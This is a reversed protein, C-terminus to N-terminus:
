NRNGIKGEEGRLLKEINSRHRAILILSMVTVMILFATKPELLWVYVPALASAVLASLSSIRFVKAMFLWTAMVALAVPWSVGLLVGIATAVGKGGKFGFFLPYIHGIFAAFAVGALVPDTVELFRALLVPLLGKLPDGLLTLAGAKKGGIRLVNTAGPNGSGQTRPDPLGMARAVLIATSISGFLYALLILGADLLTM